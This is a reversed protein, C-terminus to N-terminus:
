GRMCKMERSFSNEEAQSSESMKTMILRFHDYMKIMTMMIMMTTMTMTM